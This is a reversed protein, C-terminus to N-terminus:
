ANQRRWYDIVIRADVSAIGEATDRLTELAALAIDTHAAGLLSTAASFRVPESEVQELLPVLLEDTRGQDKWPAVLADLAEIQANAATVDNADKLRESEAVHRRFEARDADANM